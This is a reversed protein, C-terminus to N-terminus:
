EGRGGNSTAATTAQPVGWLCNCDKCLYETHMKGRADEFDEVPSVNDSHCEPCQLHMPSTSNFLDALVADIGKEDQRERADEFLDLMAELVKTVRFCLHEMGKTNPLPTQWNTVIGNTYIQKALEHAEHSLRALPTPPSLTSNKLIDLSEFVNPLFVADSEKLANEITKIANQYNNM